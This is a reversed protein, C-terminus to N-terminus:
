KEKYISIGYPAPKIISCLDNADPYLSSSPSLSQIYHVSSGFTSLDKRHTGNSHFSLIIKAHPKNKAPSDFTQFTPLHWALVAILSVLTYVAREVEHAWSPVEM